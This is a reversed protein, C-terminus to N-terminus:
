ETSSKSLFRYEDYLDRWGSLYEKEKKKPKEKEERLLDWHKGSTSGLENFQSSHYRFDNDEFEICWDYQAMQSELHQNYNLVLYDLLETLCEKTLEKKAMAERLRCLIELPNSIEIEEMIYRDRGKGDKLVVDVGHINPSAIDSKIRLNEKVTGTYASGKIKYTRPVSAGMELLSKLTVEPSEIKNIKCPKM